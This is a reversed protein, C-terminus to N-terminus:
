AGLRSLDCNNTERSESLFRWLWTSVVKKELAPFSSKMALVACWFHRRPTQVKNPSVMKNCRIKQSNKIKEQSFLFYFSSYHPADWFFFPVIWVFYSFMMGHKTWALEERLTKINFFRTSNWLPSICHCHWRPHKSGDIKLGFEQVTKPRSELSIWRRILSFSVLIERGNKSPREIEPARWSLVVWSGFRSRTEGIRARGFFDLGMGHGTVRKKKLWACRMACGIGHRSHKM